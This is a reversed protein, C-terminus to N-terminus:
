AASIRAILSDCESLRPRAGMQDFLSRAQGLVRTAGPDALAVLCRGLGLLAYAQELVCGFQEWREAADSYLTAAVAHEARQEAQIAAVTARAHQQIPVTEVVDRALRRVLDHDGLAQGARALPPLMSAYDPIHHIPAAAIEDLLSRAGTSDGAAILCASAAQIALALVFPYANTRALDLAREALEHAEAGREVLVIAKASLLQSRATGDGSEEVLPLLADAQQLVQEFQGSGIRAAANVSSEAHEAEVLGRSAAFAVAQDFQVTAAAPGEVMWRILALNHQLVAADRGRGEAIVLGLAREADALGGLDGQDCRALGHFGLARAPLPLGLEAALTLAREANKTAEASAGSIYRFAAVTTVADVLGAGPTAELLAVAREVLEAAGPEGLRTRASSLDALAQAARLLDGGEEFRAAAQEFAHAAEPLRGANRAADAWHLLVLPFDPDDIPTLSKARELLSLAKRTDLGLAREGALLAYRAAKPAVQARLEDDGIALALGLAEGTHYALVEAMDGVRESAKRELWAAASLHKVAREPRPIQAYAVDCVLLHWFGYEAEGEMSSQRAPRVLEKRGLDHLALEVERPDRNGMAISSGAWFVKGMVAADQLLQKRDQPLTDLRAAIMAQLSAPFPVDAGARLRGQEDLLSRDRLMRVFEEAYLPNGGARELLLYQTAVPLVAQELLASVLRATDDDSLPSLRIATQNALGAGWAPRAEYLEPRATCVILLPVGHAWDALHEIFALMAEDAWHVDEVVLVLPHSEAISELFRRWATFLEARAAAEGADLGLLPLLRARLWPRDDSEPVVADLKAIATERSDSEYIGAHAKLIEGLAWFTIGEGYPLCRGQRWTVLDPLGDIYSGLEAVLRSKGVGPEGVVTVLQVAQEQASKDFTKTLLALDLERGILPTMMSRILDSGIRARTQLARWIPVAEPKGKADIAQLPEFVFVRETAQYTGAGVAVADVPAQAQIRAATNVVDGTVMGEGLEPRANLAVVAEGTNVGIRVSLALAANAANLEEIEELVALGARVAREADDEHAVPAGFVAMVADGIFKEVTGGYAEIRERTRILYPAMRAQVDEPDLAESAATFGVLDCFVVSVVKRERIAAGADLPSLAAGCFPCFPFEGPLEKGCTPCEPV